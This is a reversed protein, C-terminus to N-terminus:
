CMSTIGLLLIGTKVRPLACKCVGTIPAFVVPNPGLALGPAEVLGLTTPLNVAFATTPILVSCFVALVLGKDTVRDFLDVRRQM